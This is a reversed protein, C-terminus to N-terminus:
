GEATKRKYVILIIIFAIILMLTFTEYFGIIEALKIYAEGALWGLLGLIFFRPVTGIFTCIAFKIPNIRILGAFLSIPSLPVIPIARSLILAAEDTIKGKMKVSFKEIENWSFGFFHGYREIIPQGGFYGIGYGFFAGLTAGVAGALGIIFLSQFVAEQLPIEQPLILFGAALPILPSPIPMIFTEALVGIIVGIWGLERLLNIFWMVAEELM